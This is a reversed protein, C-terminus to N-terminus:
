HYPSWRSRCEKGVRREESRAGLLVVVMPRPTKLAPGEPAVTVGYLDWKDDWSRWEIRESVLPAVQQWHPNLTQHGVVERLNPSGAVGLYVRTPEAVDEVTLLGSLQPLTM